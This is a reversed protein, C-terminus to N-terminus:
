EVQFIQTASERRRRAHTCPRPRIPRAAARHNSASNAARWPVRPRRRAPQSAKASLKPEVLGAVVAQWQENSNTHLVDYLPASKPTAQLKPYYPFASDVEVKCKFEKEFAPLIQGKMVEGWKGGWTTTKLIATQARLISPAGLAAMAAAGATTKLFGRRSVTRQTTVAPRRPPDFAPLRM